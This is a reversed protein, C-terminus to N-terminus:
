TLKYIKKETIIINLPVDHVESPLGKAVYGSEYALGIKLAKPQQALLRDYFGGGWGMRRGKADFGLTPVIILDYREKALPQGGTKDQLTVRKGKEALFNLLVETQVERLSIINEYCHITEFSEWNLLDILNKTIAASYVEVQGNTLKMRKTKLWLRMLEKNNEM